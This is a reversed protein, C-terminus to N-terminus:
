ELYKFGKLTILSPQIQEPAYKINKYYFRKNLLKKYDTVIEIFEIGQLHDYEHQIVRALLGDCRLQFKNGERDFAEVTVIKSREVPGFINGPVSGCGEYITVKEPSYYTIKPNIYIRLEDAQDVARSKTKRPETIFVQYNEGIQPAAMGILDVKHMTEILDTIVQTLKKDKFSFIKKNAGKLRPDGLFTRRRIAM